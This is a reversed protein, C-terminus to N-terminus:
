SLQQAMIKEIQAIINEDVFENVPLTLLNRSLLAANHYNTHDRLIADLGPQENLPFPYMGTAMIGSGTLANRIHDRLGDQKFILPFRIYQRNEVFSIHKSFRYLMDIYSVCVKERMQKIAQLRQSINRVSNFNLQSIKNLNIDLSFLTEGLQLGPIHLPIDYRRPHYFLMYGLIKLLYILDDRLTADALIRYNEPLNEFFAQKNVIALGGNLANLPKGRGFSYIEAAAATGRNDSYAVQANDVIVAAPIDPIKTEIGFMNVWVVAATNSNNLCKQLADADYNFNQLSVDCLLPKHGAKIVAAAVSPCTYAPIIIESGAATKLNKLLFYLAATGSNLWYGPATQLASQGSFDRIFIKHGTPPIM